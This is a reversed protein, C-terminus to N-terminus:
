DKFRDLANKSGATTFDDGHVSSMMCRKPHWFVRASSQGRALGIEELTEPYRSHWGDAARRAGYVCVM